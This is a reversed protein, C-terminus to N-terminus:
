FQIVDGQGLLRTASEAMANTELWTPLTNEELVIEMKKEETERQVYNFLYDLEVLKVPVLNNLGNDAVWNVASKGKFDNNDKEFTADISVLQKEEDYHIKDMNIIGWNMLILKSLNKKKNKEIAQNLSFREVYVKNSIELMKTMGKLQEYKSPALPVTKACFTDVNLINITVSDSSVAFYRGVKPDLIDANYSWIKDWEGM